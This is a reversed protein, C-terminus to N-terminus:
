FIKLVINVMDKFYKVILLEEEAVVEDGINSDVTVYVIQDKAPYDMGLKTRADEEIKISNKVRDLETILDEKEKELEVKENELKTIELRTKTINAYRLLVLMCLLLVIIASTFLKLKNKVKNKSKNKVIKKRKVRNKKRSYDYCEEKRAVLL